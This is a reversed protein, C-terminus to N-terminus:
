PKALETACPALEPIRLLEDRHAAVTDAVARLEPPAVKFLTGKLQKALAECSQHGAPVGFMKTLAAAKEWQKSRLYIATVYMRSRDLAPHFPPSRVGGAAVISDALAEAATSQGTLELLAMRRARLNELNSEPKLSVASDLQQLAGAYHGLAEEFRSSWIHAEPDNPNAVFWRNVWDAGANAARLRARAQEDAPWRAFTTDIVFVFSDRLVPEFLVDQPTLFEAAM